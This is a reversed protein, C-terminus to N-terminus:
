WLRVVSGDQFQEEGGGVPMSHGFQSQMRIGRQENHVVYGCGQAFNQAM